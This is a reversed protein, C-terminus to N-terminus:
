CSRASCCCRWRCCRSGDSCAWRPASGPIANWALVRNNDKDAVYLHTGDSTVGYPHNLSGGSLGGNNATGTTLNNAGAPQGLAFGPAFAAGGPQFCLINPSSADLKVYEVGSLGCLLNDAAPADTVDLTAPASYRPTM